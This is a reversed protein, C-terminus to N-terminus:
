RAAVPRWRKVWWLAGVGTLLLLAYTSPEPVVNLDLQYTAAAGLQQSRVTYTGPGLLNGASFGLLDSGINATGFHQQGIMQTTDYGITWDTGAKIGLWAVADTSVYTYLTFADLSQGTALTFSFYDYQGNLGGFSSLITNEGPALTLVTPATGLPSLPGDLSEDWAVLASARPVLVGLVLSFLCLARTIPPAFKMGFYKGGRELRHLGYEAAQANKRGCEPRVLCELM